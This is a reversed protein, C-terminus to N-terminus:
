SIIQSSGFILHEHQVDKCEAGIIIRFKDGDKFLHKHVDVTLSNRTDNAVVEANWPQGDLSHKAFKVKLKDSEWPSYVEKSGSKEIIARLVTANHLTRVSKDVRVDFNITSWEKGRWITSTSSYVEILNSNEVALSSVNPLATPPKLSLDFGGDKRKGDEPKGENTSSSM